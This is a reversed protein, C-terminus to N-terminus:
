PVVCSTLVWRSTAMSPGQSIEGNPGVEAAPTTVKDLTGQVTVTQGLKSDDFRFEPCLVDFDAGKISDGPKERQVLGILEVLKGRAEKFDARAAVPIPAAQPEPTAEAEPTTVPQEQDTPEPEPESAPASGGCAGAGTLLTGALLAAFRM